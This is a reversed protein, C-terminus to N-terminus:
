QQGDPTGPRTVRSIVSRIKGSANRELMDVREVEVHVRGLRQQFRHVIESVQAKGFGEEAVIRVSFRDLEEQVVQGELVHPLGIFIGHFRVMARGDPGVVIDEIRGTVEKLVPLQERGCPCTESSWAGIDGIAYRVLCQADNLLGTCVIRGESGPPVPMGNSDVIEIIGFDPSVHLRGCECQTALGCNEVSSYEEYAPCGWVAEIVATMGATLKESSTIAVDPQFDFSLGSQRMSQALLFQSFAYGTVVEPRYRNFGDVYDGVHAPAIHYASFYVQKEAANYRYFPPKAIGRPVVMRGGIMARPRMISTGAWGFSRVERAAIFRQHVASTCIARIPTGSSGSTQYSKLQGQHCAIAPVFAEPRQRVHEKPLIPLRSLTTPTIEKLMAETIGAASWTEKYYPAEYAQRLVERLRQEVYVSMRDLSWRDRQRFQEVTSRFETGLRQGKWYHGYLTIGVNQLPVPCYPYLKELFSGM